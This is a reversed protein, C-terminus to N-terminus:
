EDASPTLWSLDPSGFRSTAAFLGIPQYGWSGDFPFESIPMLEIHTFGMNRVYPILRDALAFYSLFQGNEDRMWSGTHLEYISIPADLAQIHEHTSQWSGVPTPRQPLGHLISATAPPYEQRFAFPGAKLPLSEKRPGLLEYKYTEGSGIGPIFIEWIGAEVRKRVPHRRGDWQNFSGVVSVRSANPAWVAFSSGSVGEHIIPHPGMKEYLRRHNGEAFLHMDLDGLIPGFRYPDDLEVMEGEYAVRLRYKTPLGAPVEGAFFGAPHMRGLDNSAGDRTDIVAVASAGPLFM